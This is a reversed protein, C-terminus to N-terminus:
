ISPEVQPSTNNVAESRIGNWGAQLERLVNASEDLSAINDNVNADTLKDTVYAYLSSLNNSLSGDDVDHNISDRLGGVISIAKGIAEGRGARDQRQMCGKAVSIKELAGSFLMQILRHADADVVGTQANISQYQQQAKNRNM